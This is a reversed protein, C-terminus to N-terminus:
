KRVFEVRRNRARGEDTSNDGIPEKSGKGVATLRDAAIGNATLAAMIAEARQQSLKDNVADSGTNDCHGQIEFKVAADDTMIKTIRNLEGTSEPRITAKGTDFTIAYTVIKGESQLRTALPVAGKAIRINRWFYLRSYDFSGALVLYTPVSANPINAVRQQDFYVKYARKNFSIAVHHWADREIGNIKFTGERYEDGGPVNWKYSIEENEGDEAACIHMWLSCGTYGDIDQLIKDKRGLMFVYDNLGIGKGNNYQTKYTEEKWIYIDFEVTCEDTLYPKQDAFLPTIRADQTNIAPQGDFEVVEAAGQFTDWMSPFEGLKEGAQTDEFIIVDGSVFDYNNWSVNAQKGGAQAKGGAEASAGAEAGQAQGGGAEADTAGEKKKGPVKGDLLDDTAKDVKDLVKQESKDKARELAKKGLGKLVAQAGAEQSVCLAMVLIALFYLRKM